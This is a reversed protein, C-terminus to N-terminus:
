GCVDLPQGPRILDPDPGVTGANARYLRATEAAVLGDASQDGTSRDGTSALRERALDWLTDGAAVVTTCGESGTEAAAGPPAGGESSAEPPRDTGDSGPVPAGPAASSAPSTSTTAPSSSTSPTSTAAPSSSTSPDAPGSSAPGSGTPGASSPGSGAVSTAAVVGASPALVLVVLVPVTGLVALLLAALAWRGPGRADGVVTVPEGGDPPVRVSVEQADEGRLAVGGAVCAAVALAATACVASVTLATRWGPPTTPERWVVLAVVVLLSAACAGALGWARSRM